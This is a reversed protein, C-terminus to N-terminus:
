NGQANHPKKLLVGLSISVVKNRFNGSFIYGNPLVDRMGGNYSVQLLFRRNYEISTMAVYGWDLRDLILPARSTPDFPHDTSGFEIKNDITQVEPPGNIIFRETTGKETGSLMCAAYFGGGLGFRLQKVNNNYMAILPLNLSYVKITRWSSNFRYRFFHKTGTANFLLAAQLTIPPKFEYQALMGANFGSIADNTTQWNGPPITYDWKASNYSALIAPKLQAHATGTIVCLLIFLFRSLM